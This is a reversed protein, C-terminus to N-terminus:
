IKSMVESYLKESEAIAAENERRTVFRYTEDICQEAMEHVGCCSVKVAALALESASVIYMRAGDDGMGALENLFSLCTQMMNAIEANICVASHRSAEIEREGGEKLARNLPGRSKIDEDILHVMYGRLIEANRLIYDLRENTQGASAIIRASRLCMASAMAATQASASGVQMRCEPDSLAQTFEDANKKKFIEIVLKDAM